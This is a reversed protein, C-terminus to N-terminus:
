MLPSRHRQSIVHNAIPLHVTQRGVKSFNLLNGISGLAVRVHIDRDAHRAIRISRAARATGSNGIPACSTWERVLAGMGAAHGRRHQPHPRLASWRRGNRAAHPVARFCHPRGRWPRPRMPAPSPTMRQMPSLRSTLSVPSANTGDLLLEIGGQRMALARRRSLRGVRSQRHASRPSRFRCLRRSRRCQRFARPGARAVPRQKHRHRCVTRM